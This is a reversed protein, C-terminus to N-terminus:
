EEETHSYLLGDLHAQVDRLYARTETALVKIAARESYAGTVTFMRGLVNMKAAWKEGATYSTRLVFNGYTYEHRESRETTMEM